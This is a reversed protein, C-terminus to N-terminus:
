TRMPGQGRDPRSPRPPPIEHPLAPRLKWQGSNRDRYITQENDHIDHHCSDCVLVLKNIDTTGGQPASWPQIHHARCRVHPAGCLVCQKDRVILALSQAMTALRVQRGLWLPQGAAGFIAGVIDPDAALYEALVSDAIPGSGLLEAAQRDDLGSLKDLTAGIVIVPRVSTVRPKHRKSTGPSSTTQAPKADPETGTNSAMGALRDALADFMRQDHTRPHSGLPLDSGGDKEYLANADRLLQNWYKDITAKDGAMMIAECDDKTRFRAVRRKARQRDHRSQTKGAQDRDLLYDDIISKGLDPNADAVKDILEDDTLSAGDTRTEADALVDLQEGSIEGSAMKDALKKNKKIAAGRKAAKRAARVSRKPDKKAISEAVKTNGDAGVVAALLSGEAADLQTRYGNIRPVAIRAPLSALHALITDMAHQAAELSPADDRDFNLVAAM